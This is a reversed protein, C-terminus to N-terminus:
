VEKQWIDLIQECLKRIQAERQDCKPIILHDFWDIDPTMQQTDEDLLFFLHNFGGQIARQRISQIYSQFWPENVVHIVPPMLVVRGTLQREIDIAHKQCKLPEKGLQAKDHLPLPVVPILITDVYPAAKQWYDQQLKDWIMCDGVFSIDASRRDIKQDGM